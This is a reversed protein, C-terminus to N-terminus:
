EHHKGGYVYKAVARHKIGDPTFSVTRITNIIFGSGRLEQIRAAPHMIGLQHRLEVTTKPGQQLAHLVILRQNFASTNM